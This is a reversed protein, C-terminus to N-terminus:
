ANEIQQALRLKLRELPDADRELDLDLSPPSPQEAVWSSEPLDAPLTEGDKVAEPPTASPHTMARAQSAISRQTERWQTVSESLSQLRGRIQLMFGDLESQWQQL